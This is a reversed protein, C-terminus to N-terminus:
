NKNIKTQSLNYNHVEGEDESEKLLKGFVIIAVPKFLVFCGVELGFFIKLYKYSFNQILKNLGSLAPNFKILEALVKGVFVEFDDKAQLYTAKNKEFWDRNNNKALKQLLTLILSFDM